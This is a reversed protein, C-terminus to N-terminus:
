CSLLRRLAAGSAIEDLSAQAGSLRGLMVERDRLKPYELHQYLQFAAPGGIWAPMDHFVPFGLALAKIGAGSGWTVACWAGRLDRELGATDPKNGPHQRVRVPRNTRRRLEAVTKETWGRPMAVGPAGIGRQPLVLIHDGDTRWPRLEINQAAVRPQDGAPWRGAGNHHDLSLAYLQRGRADHGIYGNEAVIVPCGNASAIRAVQEQAPMRNWLIVLDNPGWPRADFTQAVSYGLADVGSLFAAHRETGPHRISLYARGTM